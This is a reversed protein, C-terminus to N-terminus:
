PLRNITGATRSRATSAQAIALTAEAQQEAAANLKRDLYREALSEPFLRGTRRLAPFRLAHRRPGSKALEVGLRAFALSLAKVDHVVKETRDRIGPTARLATCCPYRCPAAKGVQYSLGIFGNTTDLALALPAASPRAQLWHALADEDDITSYDRTASDDEPPLDKLLSFFELEKFAAKLLSNDPPQAKLAALDWEIPM